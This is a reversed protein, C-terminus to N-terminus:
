CVSALTVDRVPPEVQDQGQMETVHPELWQILAQWQLIDKQCKSPPLDFLTMGRDMARVYNQSDRLMCVLPIDLKSLFENLVNFYRTTVRARNAVMGVHIPRELLGTRIMGMVFRLCAKIDTPSALMPIIVTDADKILVNVNELTWAAPMDHIVVKARPSSCEKPSLELQGPLIVNVPSCTTPRTKVWDLSSRQADHDVLLVPQNVSSFYGALQVAVTTKGCGGKPNAVFIQGM